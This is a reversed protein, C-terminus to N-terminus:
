FGHQDAWYAALYTLLGTWGIARALAAGYLSIMPRHQFIPRYAGLVKTIEIRGPDQVNDFPIVRQALAALALAVAGVVVMSARWSSLSAIFTLTPIGFIPGAAMGSAITGIARRREKGEFLTGAIAMTTGAMMGGSVASIMRIAFLWGFTPALASGVASLMVI